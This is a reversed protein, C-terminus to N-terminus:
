QLNVLLDKFSVHLELTGESKGYDLQEFFNQTVVLAVQHVM